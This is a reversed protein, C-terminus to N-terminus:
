RRRTEPGIRRPRTLLKKSMKNSAGGRDVLAVARWSRVGSCRALGMPDGRLFFRNIPPMGLHINCPPKTGAQGGNAELKWVLASIFFSLDGSVPELKGPFDQALAAFPIAKKTWGNPNPKTQSGPLLRPSFPFVLQSRSWNGRSVWLLLLSRIRKEQELWQPKAKDPFSRNPKRGLVPKTKDPSKRHDSPFELDNYGFSKRVIPKSQFSKGRLGAPRRIGLRVLERLFDLEVLVRDGARFPTRAPLRATILYPGFELFALTEHGALELRLITAPGTPPNSGPTFAGAPRIMVQEPRLGLDLRPVGRESLPLVEPMSLPISWRGLEDLHVIRITLNRDEQAVLCPLLNMPPQGLFRAVFRYAPRDYLDLPRGVQVIRGRDLVAVRDGLALAEAQDHTVLVMTAGLKRKLDALEARTSARLPADLGSFPEDFLFLGPRLVLARALAVRRRQGGSLTDPPRELCDALGLVSATGRVLEGIEVRPKRRARLGFAINEFVNLHPYLVQDQFVMAVDRDRPALGDIRRGDLWISGSDPSELGAVLRLLTSKGSGSPGVIVFLEGDEVTLNVGRAAVIEGPFSKSVAQLELRGM